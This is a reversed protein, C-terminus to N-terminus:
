FNSTLLTQSLTSSAIGPHYMCAGEENDASDFIEDCHVCVPWGSGESFV